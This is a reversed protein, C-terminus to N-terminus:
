EVPLLNELSYRQQCYMEKEVIWKFSLAAEVNSVRELITVYLGAQALAIGTMLGSLSAGVIVATGNSQQEAKRSSGNVVESIIGEKM